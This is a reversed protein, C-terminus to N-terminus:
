EFNFKFKLDVATDAPLNSTTSGTDENRSDVSGSVTIRQHLAYQFSAKMNEAYDLQLILSLEDTIRIPLNLRAVPQPQDIDPLYTDIYIQRIYQQGTLDFIKELPGEAYGVFLSLAENELFNSPTNSDTSPLRGTTMLLIIDIKSFATGDPKTPPDVTLSVKPESVKGSVVVQVIYNTGEALIEAEGIIDLRPDPPYTPVEFSVIGRRISFDRRYKFAGKTTEIQGLIIPKLENGRVTLDTSLRVDMNKNKIAIKDSSNIALDFDFLPEDQASPATFRSQQISSVIQKRLDFDTQSSAEEITVNGTVRFPKEKGTMTLDGSLTADASKFVPIYFRHLEANSFNIFMQSDEPRDSALDWRGKVKISGRNGKSGEIQKIIIADSTLTADITINTFSPAFDIMGISIPKWVKRKFPDLKQDRFNINIDPQDLSGRIYGEFLVRGEATEIFPALKRIIGLDISGQTTINLKEPPNNNNLGLEINFESGALSLTKKNRFQWHKERLELEIPQESKLEIKQLENNAKQVFQSEIKNINLSGTSNWWNELEGAMTWEASVYAYNRPDKSFFPSLAARADFQDLFVYWQYPMGPKLFDFSLRGVFSNGAHKLIPIEIKSGNAFGSFQIPAIPSGFAVLRDLTGSFSGELHRFTGELKTDFRLDAGVKAPRLMDGIIPLSGLHNLKDYETHPAFTESGTNQSRASLQIRNDHNLGLSSWDDSDTKPPGLRKEEYDIALELLDLRAYIDKARVSKSTATVRGQLLSFFKSGDKIGHSLSADIDGKWLIPRDIPIEIRGELKKIGFSVRQDPFMTKIGAEIFKPSINKASVDGSIVFEEMALQGKTMMFEGRTLEEIRFRDIMLRNSPVLYRSSLEIRKGPFGFVAGNEGNINLTIQLKDYSGHIRSDLVYSGAIPNQIFHQLLDGEISPSDVKLDMGQETEFFVDGGIFLNPGPEAPEAQAKPEVPTLAIGLAEDESKEEDVDSTKSDDGSVEARESAKSTDDTSPLQCVGPTRPIRVRQSNIQFVVKLDCSPKAFPTQSPITPLTLDAFRADGAVRMQFPEGTGTIHLDDSSVKAELAQYDEVQLMKMLTTFSMENPVIHFNFATGKAFSLRGKGTALAKRIGRDKRVELDDFYIADEDISIRADSQLLKFGQLQADHSRVVAGLTWNTEDESFPVDATFRIAGSLKGETRETELYDGLISIDGRKLDLTSDISVGNLDFNFLRRGRFLDVKRRTLDLNAQVQGEIDLRKSKVNFAQSRIKNKRNSIALEIRTDKLVHLGDSYFNLRNVAVETDWDDWDNFDLHFTFGDLRAAIKPASGPKDGPLQFELIADTLSFRDIPLEFDPPWDIGKPKEAPSSLGTDKKPVPIPLSRGNNPDGQTTGTDEVEATKFIGEPLPYSARLESLQVLGLRPKGLLLSLISVRVQTRSTSLVERGEQDKVSVGYLDFGPPVFQLSIAKFELKATTHAEVKENIFTGLVRHFYPNDVATNLLVASIGLVLIAILIARISHHM